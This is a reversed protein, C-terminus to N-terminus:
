ARHVSVHKAPAPRQDHPCHASRPRGTIRVADTQQLWTQCREVLVNIPKGIGPWWVAAAARKRCKSIGQTTKQRHSYIVHSVCVITRRRPRSRGDRVVPTEFHSTCRLSSTLLFAVSPAASNMCHLFCTTLYKAASM